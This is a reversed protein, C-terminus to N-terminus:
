KPGVLITPPTEVNQNVPRWLHLVGPHYNVYQSRPPHFQVVCDEPDWFLDKVQCMIDWSPVISRGQLGVSVHEWGEGDSAICNIITPQGGPARFKLVFVGNNGYSSDSALMGTKLRYKEPAKFM